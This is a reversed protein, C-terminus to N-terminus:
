ASDGIFPMPAPLRLSEEPCPALGMGCVADSCVGKDPGGTDSGNTPDGMRLAMCAAGCSCAGVDRPALSVLALGPGALLLPAGADPLVLVM